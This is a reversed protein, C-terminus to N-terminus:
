KFCYQNALKSADSATIKDNRYYIKSPEEPVETEAMGSSTSIKYYIQKTQKDYLNCDDSGDVVSAEVWHIDVLRSATTNTSSPIGNGESTTTQYVKEYVASGNWRTYLFAGSIIVIIALVAIAVNLKKNMHITYLFIKKNWKTEAFRFGFGAPYM